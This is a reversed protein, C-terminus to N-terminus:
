IETFNAQEIGKQMKACEACKGCYHKPIWDQKAAKYYKVMKRFRALGWDLSKQSLEFIQAQPHKEKTVAAILCRKVQGTTLELAHQYLGQQELIGKGQIWSVYGRHAKLESWRDKNGDWWVDDFNATTKYDAYSNPMEVDIASKFNLGEFEFTIIKENAISARRMEVINNQALMADIMEEGKIFEARMTGKPAPINNDKLAQILLEKKSNKPVKFGAETLADLMKQCTASVYIYDKNQWCFDKHAKEGEMFSHLFNGVKFIIDLKFDIVEDRRDLEHILEGKHWCECYDKITSQSMYEANAEKSYYNEPTLVLM